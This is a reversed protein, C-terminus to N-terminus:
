LNLTEMVHSTSMLKKFCWIKEELLFIKFCHECYSLACSRSLSVNLGYQLFEDNFLNLTHETSIYM